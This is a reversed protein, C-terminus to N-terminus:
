NNTTHALTALAIPNLPQDTQTAPGYDSAGMFAWTVTCTLKAVPLSESSNDQDIFLYHGNWIVGNALNSIPTPLVTSDTQISQLSDASQNQVFSQVYGYENKMGMTALGSIGGSGSVSTLLGPSNWNPRYQIVHNKVFATPTCGAEQLRSRVMNRTEQNRNMLVYIQPKSPAATAGEQFTNYLPQLEWKVHTAKYYKFDVALSTARTFSQITFNLNYPQNPLLDVSEFTEVIKAHQAQPRLGVIPNITRQAAAKPARRKPRRAPARRRRQPPM